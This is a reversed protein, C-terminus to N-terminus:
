THFHVNEDGLALRNGTIDISHPSEVFSMADRKLHPLSM